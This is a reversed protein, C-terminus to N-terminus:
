SGPDVTNGIDKDEVEPEGVEGLLSKLSRSMSAVRDSGWDEVTGAVKVQM